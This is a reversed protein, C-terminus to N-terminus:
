LLAEDDDHSPSAVRGRTPTTRRTRVARLLGAARICRWGLKLMDWRSMRWATEMKPNPHSIRLVGDDYTLKPGTKDWFLTIM